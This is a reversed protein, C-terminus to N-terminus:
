PPPSTRCPRKIYTTTATGTTDTHDAYSRAIGYGFHREVWTLTTHRLWHTSVGHTAIWPRERGLRYWLHDYRRYTLPQGDRYRLLTDTPLVTSRRTAHDTLAHALTCTGM